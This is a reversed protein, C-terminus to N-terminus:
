YDKASMVRKTKGVTCRFRFFFLVIHLGISRLLPIVNLGTNERSGTHYRSILFLSNTSQYM